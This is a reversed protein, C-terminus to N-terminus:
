EHDKTTATDPTEKDKLICYTFSIPLSVYIQPRLYPHFATTIALEYLSNAEYVPRTLSAALCSM